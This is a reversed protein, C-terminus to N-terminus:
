SRASARPFRQPGVLHRQAMASVQAAASTMGLDALLAPTVQSANQLHPPVFAVAGPAAQYYIHAVGHSDTQGSTPVILKAGAPCSATAPRAVQAPWQPAATASAEAASGTRGPYRAHGDDCPRALQERYRPTQDAKINTHEVENNGGTDSFHRLDTFRSEAPPSVSKPASAPPPWSIM